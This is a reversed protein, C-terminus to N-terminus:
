ATAPRTFAFLCALRLRVTWPLRHSCRCVRFAHSRLGVASLRQRICPLCSFEYLPNQLPRSLLEEFSYAKAARAWATNLVFAWPSRVLRSLLDCLIHVSTESEM